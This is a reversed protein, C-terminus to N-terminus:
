AALPEPEEDEEDDLALVVVVENTDWRFVLERRGALFDVHDPQPLDGDSLLERFQEEADEPTPTDPTEM